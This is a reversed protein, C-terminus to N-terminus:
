KNLLVYLGIADDYGNTSIDCVPLRLPLPRIETFIMNSSAMVGGSGVLFLVSVVAAYVKL